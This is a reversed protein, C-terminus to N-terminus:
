VLYAKKNGEFEVEIRDQLTTSLTLGEYDCRIPFNRHKRDVLAVTKLKKPLYKLLEMLAYQMTRGSNIVDDILIIPQGQYDNMDVDTTIPHDLPKKKDIIMECVTIEQQGIKELLEKLVKAIKIGNGHIGVLLISEEEFTDEYIQYAIRDLKQNIQREDLVITKM